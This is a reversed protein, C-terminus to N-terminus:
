NIKEIYIKVTGIFASNMYENTINEYSVWMGIKVNAKEYEDLIGDFLLYTNNTYDLGDYEKTDKINNNLVNNNYNKGNIYVSFNIFENDLRRSVNHKTYDNTEELVIIYKCKSNEINNLDISKIDMFDEIDFNSKENDIIEFVNDDYVIHKSKGVIIDLDGKIVQAYENDYYIIKINDHINKIEKVHSIENNVIIYDNEKIVGNSYYIKNNEKKIPVMIDSLNSYFVNDDFTIDGNRVFFTTNDKTIEMSGDSLYLLEINNSIVKINGKVKKTTARRDIIGNEDVAPKNDLSFVRLYDGNAYKILVTNDSYFVIINEGQIVEKIKIVAGSSITDKINGEFLKSAYDSTIPRGNIVSQDNGNFTVVVGNDEYEVIESNKMNKLNYYFGIIFLIFAILILIVLLYWWYRKLFLIFGTREKREEEVTINSKDIKKVRFINTKSM